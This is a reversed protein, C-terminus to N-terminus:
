FPTIQVQADSYLEALKMYIILFQPKRKESSCTARLLFCLVIKLGRLAFRSQPVMGAENVTLNCVQFEACATHHIQRKCPQSLDNQSHKQLVFIVCHSYICLHICHNLNCHLGSCLPISESLLWILAHLFIEALWPM